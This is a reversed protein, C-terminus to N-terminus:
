MADLLDPVAQSAWGRLIVVIAEQLDPPAHPLLRLVQAAPTAPHPPFAVSPPIGLVHFLHLAHLLDPNGEGRELAYIASRSMGIAAALQGQSLHHRKRERRIVEALHTRTWGTDFSAGGRLAGCGLTHGEEQIATM